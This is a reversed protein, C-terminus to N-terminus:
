GDSHWRASCIRYHLQQLWVASVVDPPLGEALKEWLWTYQDYVTEMTVYLDDHQENFQFLLGQLKEAELGSWGTWYYLETPAMGPLPPKDQGYPVGAPAANLTAPLCTAAALTATGAGAMRLFSRRSHRTLNQSEM